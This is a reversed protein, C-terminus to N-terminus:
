LPSTFKSIQARGRRFDRKRIGDLPSRRPESIDAALRSYEGRTLPAMAELIARDTPQEEKLLATIEAKRAGIAVSMRDQLGHWEEAVRRGGRGRNPAVWQADRLKAAVNRAASLVADADQIRRDAVSLPHPLALVRVGRVTTTSRRLRRRKASHRLTVNCGPM